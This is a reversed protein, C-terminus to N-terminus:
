DNFNRVMLILNYNVNFLGCANLEYEYGMIYEAVVIKENHHIENVWKQKIRMEVLEDRIQEKIMKMGRHIYEGFSVIVYPILIHLMCNMSLSIKVELYQQPPLELILYLSYLASFCNSYLSTLILFGVLKNYLCFCEKVSKFNKLIQEVAATSNTEQQQELLDHIIIKKYIEFIYSGIIVIFGIEVLTLALKTIKSIFRYLGINWLIEGNPSKWDIIGDFIFSALCLVIVIHVFKNPVSKRISENSNSYTALKRLANFTKIILSTQLLLYIRGFFNVLTLSFLAVFSTLFVSWDASASEDLLHIEKLYATIFGLVNLGISYLFMYNKYFRPQQIENCDNVAATLIQTIKIPFCGLLGAFILICSFQKSILIQFSKIILLKRQLFNM